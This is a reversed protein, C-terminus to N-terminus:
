VLCNKRIPKSKNKEWEELHHVGEPDGAEQYKKLSSSPDMSRSIHFFVM